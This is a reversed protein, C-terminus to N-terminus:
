IEKLVSREMRQFITAGAMLLLAVIVASTVVSWWHVPGEFFGARSLELVGSMPNLAMVPRLLEPVAQLSYLVPTMYFGFRLAIRILRQTDLFMVNLPALILGIGLILLGQLVLAPLFLVLRWSVQAQGALLYFATFGSLVPLALVFEIGKALVVRVVWIERPLNTSRVLRAEQRLTHTSDTVAASFWQWALLGVVLYLFYPTAGVDRAKFVYTFVVFYVSSMLLPDLITWVYGLASQAYRIQLDRRVLTWLVARKAYV